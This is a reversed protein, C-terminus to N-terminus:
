RTFGDFPTMYVPNFPAMVEKAKASPTGYVVFRGPKALEFFEKSFHPGFNDVLHHLAADSDVYRETIDVTSDDSGVSYEYQITGPEQQTATVLKAALQKFKDINGQPVMVTVVWHIENSGAAAKTQAAAPATMAALVCVSLWMKRMVVGGQIESSPDIQLLTAATLIKQLPRVMLIADGVQEASASLLQAALITIM